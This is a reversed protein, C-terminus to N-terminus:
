LKVHQKQLSKLVNVIRALAEELNSRPTAINMRMFGSGAEGFSLGDNLHVKADANLRRRLEEHSLGCENFDLWCLYTGELVTLKVAPLESALFDRLHQYNDYIYTIAAELWEEGGTYAAQAAFIGFANPGALHMRSLGARIVDRWAKNETVIHAYKMGALNFTKSPAMCTIVHQAIDPSLTAMPVFSYGPMILDCHIEDSVIKVGNAICIEAMRTLEEPTWVRGTPNHPSSSIFMTVKPDAALAEFQEFDITYRGAERDYILQNNAVTRGNLEIKAIFPPYIPRQVIIKDGPETLDAVMVSLAPLVGPSFIVWDLDIEYGYRRKFWGLLTSKFDPEPTTYGYIPHEIREILANTVVPPAAFDMDAVWMQIVREDGVAPKDTHTVVRVGDQTIVKYKASGTNFRDIVKDFNFTM